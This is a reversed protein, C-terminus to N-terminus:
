QIATLFTLLFPNAVITEVSIWFLQKHNSFIFHTQGMGFCRYIQKGDLDFFQGMTFVKNDPTIKHIMKLGEASAQGPTEYYTIYIVAKGNKGEYFGIENKSSTVKQSHLRNVFKKAKSGTLRKQLFLGAYEKQLFNNEQTCGLLIFLITFCITFGQILKNLM